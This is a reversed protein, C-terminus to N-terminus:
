YICTSFDQWDATIDPRVYQFMVICKSTRFAAALVAECFQLASTNRRPYIIDGLLYTAGVFDTLLDDRFHILHAVINVVQLDVVDFNVSGFYVFCRLVEASSGYTISASTINRRICPIPCLTFQQFARRVLILSPRENPMAECSAITIVHM